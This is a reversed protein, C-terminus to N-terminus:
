EDDEDDDYDVVVAAGATGGGVVVESQLHFGLVHLSCECGESIKVVVVGTM